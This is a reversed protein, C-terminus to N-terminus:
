RVPVVDDIKLIMCVCETALTIASTNVLLPQVVNEESMNTICNRRVNIGADTNGEAHQKRLETVINIPNLGANEALTFPVIELAEAYARVCYGKMGTQEKAWSSLKLALETEAVGGGSILFRKKVLSRVVCLADHISRDAEDLTLKNTGRVLVTCTRGPNAVGTVKVVRQTGGPMTVENCLEASGLKDATFSDVHAVPMCNLSRSIFDIDNREIDTIVMIGMKALFHLSLDNYADRLISKQILLVTCGAKKIKKCLGLIYKREERLIRDMAAYDSVVVNNEMDSKPASLCFQILGIKANEVHTPGGATKKAGKDFVLGNVLETDDITGGIQKVIKIDNLDVNTATEPNIVSLVADVSIPSITDSNQSVVKSSLCTTVANILDERNGLDVPRSVGQLIVDAQQLAAMFAESIATPHIGKDLLGQCTNLLSGAIVCVSTTGDGAEIDQSQSLEVLMKATPHYVSMQSLITAGDNTIIVEGDGKQIMKDMGRPGLSTRVADAVGKAAIINSMRVDKEKQLGRHTDGASM